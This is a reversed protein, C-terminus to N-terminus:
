CMSEHKIERLKYRRLHHTPACIKYTYNMYLPRCVLDFFNEFPAHSDSLRDLSNSLRTRIVNFHRASISALILMAEVSISRPTKGRLYSRTDFHASIQCILSPMGGRKVRLELRTHNIRLSINFYKLM